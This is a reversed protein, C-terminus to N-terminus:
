LYYNNIRLLKRIRVEKKPAEIVMLNAIDDITM